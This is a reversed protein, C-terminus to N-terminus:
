AHVGQVLRYYLTHIALWHGRVQIAALPIRDRKAGHDLHDLVVNFDVDPLPVAFTWRLLAEARQRSLFGTDRQDLRAFREAIDEPKAVHEPLVRKALRRKVLWLRAWLLARWPWPRRPGDDELEMALSARSVLRKIPRGEDVLSQNSHGRGPAPSDLGTVM